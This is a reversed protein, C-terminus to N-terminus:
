LSSRTMKEYHTLLQEKTIKSGEIKASSHVVDVLMKKRKEPTDLYKNFSSLTKKM